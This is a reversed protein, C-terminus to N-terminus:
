VDPQDVFSFTSQRNFNSGGSQDISGDTGIGAQQQQQQQQQQQELQMSATDSLEQIRANTDEGRKEMRSQLEELASTLQDTVAFVQNIKGLITPLTAKDKVKGQIARSKKIPMCRPSHRQLYPAVHMETGSYLTRDKERLYIKLWVYQWM